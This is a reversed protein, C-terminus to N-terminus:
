HGAYLTIYAQGNWWVIYGGQFDSERQGENNTYEDSTPLGLGSATGGFNVYAHYICGHVEHAGTTSSWIVASGTGGCGAGSFTNERGSVAGSSNYVNQEDSTPFGLSVGARISDLYHQYICGHIEHTGYTSSYQITSGSRSGCGTGSFDSEAGGYISYEDTIPFGLLSSPGGLQQYKNYICGHVEHGGSASNNSAPVYIASGSHYPGGSGCLQAGFYSAWGILSGSSNYLKNEDSKPYGVVSGTAGLRQYAAYVCGQMEFTGASSSYIASGSNDPGTAVGGCRVGYFYSVYGGSIALVDSTPFNLVSNPGGMNWYKNYICGGVQHAGTTSTWYIASGSNSPGRSGCLNGYFYSVRGSAIGLENSTPFGLGGNPGNWTYAYETYIAGQVENTSTASSWYISGHQFDQEQGLVSGSASIIDYWSGIAVGLPGTAGGTNQWVTYFAGGGVVDVVAPPAPYECEGTVNDYEGQVANYFDGNLYIGPHTATGLDPNSCKDGMECPHPNASTGCNDQDDYWGTGNQQFITWIPNSIAEFQEHSTTNITKDLPTATSPFTPDGSCAGGGWPIVAYIAGGPFFNNHYGCEPQSCTDTPGYVNYNQPTFVFYITSDDITPAERSIEYWIDAYPDLSGGPETPAPFLGSDSITNSGCVDSHIFNPDMVSGAVTITDSIGSYQTLIGEFSSGSVDIFYQNVAQM